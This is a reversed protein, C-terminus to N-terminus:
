ISLGSLLIDHDSVVIDYEAAAIRKLVPEAKPDRSEAFYGFSVGDVELPTGTSLYAWAPRLALIRSGAPQVVQDIFGYFAAASNKAEQDPTPIPHLLTIALAAAATIPAAMKPALREWLCAGWAVLGFLLPMLYSQFAGHKGLLLVMALGGAAFLVAGPQLASTRVRKFFLPLLAFTVAALQAVVFRWPITLFNAPRWPHQTLQLMTLLYGGGSIWQLWLVVTAGLLALVFSLRLASTRDVVFWGLVLPAGVIAVTPKTACGAVLLLGAAVIRTWSLTESGRELRRPLVVWSAVAWLALALGDAKVTLLFVVWDGRALALAGAAAALSVRAGRRAIAYMAVWSLGLLGFMLLRALLLPPQQILWLPALVAPLGPGYMEPTPSLQAPNPYLSAADHLLRAAWDLAMGDDPGWDFPYVAIARAGLATSLMVLAVSVVVITGLFLDRSSDGPRSGSSARDAM